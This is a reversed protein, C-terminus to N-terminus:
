PQFVRSVDSSPVSKPTTTVLEVSDVSMQSNRKIRKPQMLKVPVQDQVTQKIKNYCLGTEVVDGPEPEPNEVFYLFNTLKKYLDTVSFITSGSTRDKFPEVITLM